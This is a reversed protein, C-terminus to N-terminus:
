SVLFERAPVFRVWTKGVKKKEALSLNVVWAERPEYKDIFSRLSRSIEPRRLKQYKVEVPTVENGTEMVFDVEAGDKSRWFHIEGGQDRVREELLRGVWNQWVWGKEVADIMGLRGLAYNRMGLDQFYIVPSKTIEKRVNRFYPTVRNLIFTKEMYWLYNKVTQAAIGLTTALESVRVLRGVQAAMTKLLHVFDDTKQVGLLYSIDREVYSQYLENMAETKTQRTEALVVRPYGGFNMYEELWQEDKLGEVKLLEKLNGAYRYGTKFDLWEEFSVTGLRFVKKRGVLSEHVREKLEVAGSGSVILKYPLNMDYIGKLFVGADEKRQIEDIFVYGREKGLEIRIKEVLAGQSRFFQRDAEIDLNLWLWKGGQKELEERLALMLTTKGAQRPGVILSMEKEGLHVKLGEFLERRILM